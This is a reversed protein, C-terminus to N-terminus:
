GDCREYWALAMAAALDKDLWKMREEQTMECVIYREVDVLGTADIEALEVYDNRAWLVIPTDDDLTELLEVLEKAKVTSTGREKHRWSLAWASDLEEVSWKGQDDKWMSDAIDAAVDVLGGMGVAMDFEVLEVGDWSLWLVIPTEEDVSELLEILEKATTM